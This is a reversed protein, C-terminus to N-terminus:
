SNDPRHPLFVSALVSGGLLVVVVALSIEISIPMWEALVMKGGIFVLVLGLGVKLFRFRDM